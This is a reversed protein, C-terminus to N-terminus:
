WECSLVTEQVCGTGRSFAGFVTSEAVGFEEPFRLTELELLEWEDPRLGDEDVCLVVVVFLSGRRSFSRPWLALPALALFAEDLAVVSVEVQASIIVCWRIWRPTDLEQVSGSGSCVGLWHKSFLCRSSVPHRNPSFM